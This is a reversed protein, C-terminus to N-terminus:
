SAGPKMVVLVIGGIALVAGAIAKVSLVEGLLLWALAVTLLPYSTVSIPSAKSVGIRQMGAIYLTDGIGMALVASAGLAAARGWGVHLLSEVNGTALLLVLYFLLGVSLRFFSIALTPMRRSLGAMILSSCAWLGASAM